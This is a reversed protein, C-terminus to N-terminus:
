IPKSELLYDSLDSSLKTSENYLKQLKIDNATTTEQLSRTNITIIENIKELEKDKKDCLITLEEELSTLNDIDNFIDVNNSIKDM